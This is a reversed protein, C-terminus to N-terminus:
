RATSAVSKGCSAKMWERVKTLYRDTELRREVRSRQLVAGRRFHRAGFGLFRDGIWFAAGSITIPPSAGRPLLLSQLRAPFLTLSFGLAVPTRRRQGHEAHRM